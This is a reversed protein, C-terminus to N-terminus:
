GSFARLIAMYKEQADTRLKAVQELEEESLKQNSHHFLHYCLDRIMSFRQERKDKDQEKEMEAVQLQIFQIRDAISPRREMERRRSATYLSHELGWGVPADVSIFGWMALIEQTSEPLINWLKREKSQSSTAQTNQKERQPNNLQQRARNCFTDPAAIGKVEVRADGSGYNITGYGLIWGLPNRKISVNEIQKLPIQTVNPIYGYRLFLTDTTIAFENTVYRMLQLLLLGGGGILLWFAYPWEKWYLYGGLLLLLIPIVFIVWHLKAEYVIEENPNLNNRVYGM